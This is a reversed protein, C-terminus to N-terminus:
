NQERSVGPGLRKIAKDSRQVRRAEKVQMGGCRIPSSFMRARGRVDADDSNSTSADSVELLQKM